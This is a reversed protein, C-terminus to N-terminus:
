GHFDSPGGLLEERLGSCAAVTKNRGSEKGRYMARDAAAIAEAATTGDSPFEAVGISVHVSFTTTGFHVVTESVRRRIEEARGFADARRSGPMVVVFEEGGYRTVTDGARAGALLVQSVARLTADGAAHSHTDNVQKFHDIDLMLFSVPTASRQAQAIERVLSDDLFRRNYLTTLPDRIAQEQLREKLVNIERLSAELEDNLERLRQESRKLDTVDHLTVLHAEPNGLGVALSRVSFDIYRVDGDVSVPLQVSRGEDGHSHFSAAVGQFRGLIAAAEKGRVQKATVHALREAARNTDAIRDNADLVVFGDDMQQVLEDRALPVIDLLRGRLLAVFWVAATIMFAVPTADFIGLPRIGARFAVSTAFPFAWGALVIVAQTRRVGISRLAVRMTVFMGIVVYTYVVVDFAWYLPGLQGIYFTDPGVAHAVFGTYYLHAPNLMGVAVLAIPVLGVLLLRGTTRWKIKGAEVLAFGLFGAAAIVSGIDAIGGWFVQGSQTPMWWVLAMSGSWVVEGFLMAAFPEAAPAARRYSWALSGLVLAVVASAAMLFVYVHHLEIM